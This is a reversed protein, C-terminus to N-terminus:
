FSLELFLDDMARTQNINRVDGQARVSLYDEYTLGHGVIFM